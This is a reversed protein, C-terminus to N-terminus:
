GVAILANIQLLHKLTSSWIACLLADLRSTTTKNAKRAIQWQNTM